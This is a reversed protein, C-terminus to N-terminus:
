VAVAAARRRRRPSQDAPRAVRQDLGAARPADRRPHPRQHAHGSRRGSVGPELGFRNKLKTIQAALTKPDATNGEFVEIAIPIGAPSCLLGYVIQLRGKVGDRPHGIAGLPCTRGEFAASSVDYLVLTGNVLHRAALANEIATRAGLAWDMAAYLDDEDCGSVGLVQGLSSTATETRLGRATALKSGPAIVQAVLMAIVLDRQRSPVPDILEDM